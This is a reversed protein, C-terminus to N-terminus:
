TVRPFRIGFKFRVGEATHCNCCVPM